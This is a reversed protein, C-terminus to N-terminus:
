ALGLKTKIVDYDLTLQGQENIKLGSDPELVIKLAEGEYELGGNLAVEKLAVTGSKYPFDYQYSSSDNITLLELRYKDDSKNDDSNSTRVVFGHSSNPKTVKLEGLDINNRIISKDGDSDTIVIEGKANIRNNFTKIGDIEEDRDSYMITTDVTLVEIGNSYLTGDASELHIWETNHNDDNSTQYTGLYNIFWCKRMDIRGDLYIYQKAYGWEGVGCNINNTIQKIYVFKNTSNNFYRLFLIKPNRILNINYAADEGGKNDNFSGLDYICGLLDDNNAINVLRYKNNHVTFIVNTTNDSLSSLANFVNQGNDLTLDQLNVPNSSNIIGNDFTVNSMSPINVINNNSGFTCHSLKEGTFNGNSFVQKFICYEVTCSFINGIFGSGLNNNDGWSEAEDNFSSLRLGKIGQRKKLCSLFAKNMSTIVDAALKQVVSIQSCLEANNGCKDLYEKEHGMCCLRISCTKQWALWFLTLDTNSDM